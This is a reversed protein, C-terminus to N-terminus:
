TSDLAYAPFQIHIDTAQRKVADHVINEFIQAISSNYYTQDSGNIKVDARSEYFALEGLYELNENEFHLNELLVDLDSQCVLHFRVDYDGLADQIEQKASISVPNSIAVHNNYDDDLKFVIASHEKAINEPLQTPNIMSEALNIAPFDAWQERYFGIDEDNMLGSELLLDESLVSSNELVTGEVSVAGIQKLFHVFTAQM